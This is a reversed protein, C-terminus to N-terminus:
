RFSIRQKNKDLLEGTWLKTCRVKLEGLCMDMDRGKDKILLHMYYKATEPIWSLIQSVQINVSKLVQKWTLGGDLSKYVGRDGGNSWLPGYAAVYIIDSNNPDIIIEGIHESNQLGMNTFSKGGDMSKYIGDGYGVSRQNNAEGTGVWVVNPNNPDLQVCGISYSGYNEFIPEFTTGANSTKFVGGCAM